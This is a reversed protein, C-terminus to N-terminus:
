ECVITGSTDDCVKDSGCAYLSFTDGVADCCVIDYITGDDGLFWDESPLCACLGVDEQTCAMTTGGEDASPMVTKPAGPKTAPPKKTTTTTQPPATKTGADAKKVAGGDKNASSSSCAMSAGIACITVTVSKKWIM